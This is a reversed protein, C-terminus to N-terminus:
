LGSPIVYWFIHQDEDVDVYGSYSKVGEQTECIGTPVEKYRVPLDLYGTANILDTPAKVFQAAVSTAATLLIPVRLSSYMAIIHCTDVSSSFPLHLFLLLFFFFFYCSGGGQKDIVASIFRSRSKECAGSANGM